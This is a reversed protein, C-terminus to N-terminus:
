AFFKAGLKIVTDAAAAIEAALGIKHVIEQIQAKTAELKLNVVRGQESLAQFERARDMIEAKNLQTLIDFVAEALGHIRDKGEVTSAAWYAEYSLLGYLKQYADQLDGWGIGGRSTAM